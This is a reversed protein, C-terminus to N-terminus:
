SEMVALLSMLGVNVWEVEMSWLKSGAAVAAWGLLFSSVKASKSCFRWFIMAPTVLGLVVVVGEVGVVDAAWVVKTWARVEQNISVEAWPRRFQTRM